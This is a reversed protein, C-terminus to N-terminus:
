ERLRVIAQTGGRVVFPRHRVTLRVPVPVGVKPSITAGFTSHARALFHFTHAPSYSWRM